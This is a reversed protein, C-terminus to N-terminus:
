KEEAVLTAFPALGLYAPIVSQAFCSYEVPPRLLMKLPESAVSMLSTGPYAEPAFTSDEERM